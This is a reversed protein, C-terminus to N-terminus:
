FTDAIDGGWWVVNTIQHKTTVPRRVQVQVPLYLVLSVSAVIIYRVLVLCM